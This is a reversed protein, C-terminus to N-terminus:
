LLKCYCPEMQQWVCCHPTKLLILLIMLMLNLSVHVLHFSSRRIPQSLYLKGGKPRLDTQTMLANEWVSRPTINRAANVADQSQNAIGVSTVLMYVYAVAVLDRFFKGGQKLKLLWEATRPCTHRSVTAVAQVLEWSWRLLLTHPKNGM